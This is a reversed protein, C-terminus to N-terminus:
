RHVRGEGRLPLAARGAPDPDQRRRARDAGHPPRHLAPHVSVDVREYDDKTIAYSLKQVLQIAEFHNHHMKWNGSILPKRDPMPLEESPRSDPCTAKNSCSSVAGGGTSVHDIEDDLGFKASRRERQRRRRGRHLWPDRRVGRGGGTHGGRLTPRRLCGDPRELVRDAGRNIVEGFAAAAGPGIDLGKWGDPLGRGFMRMDGGAAPNGIKGEASLGSSTRLCCSRAPGELLQRCADVQDAELLSDGISRGQAAFFTFCMGGGILLQDVKDLLASIVGLKDSVKSGGLVTVFPRAPNDLLGGLM